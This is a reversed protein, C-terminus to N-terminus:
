LKIIGKGDFNAYYAGCTRPFVVDKIQNPDSKLLKNFRERKPDNVENENLDM